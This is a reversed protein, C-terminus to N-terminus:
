SSFLVLPRLLLAVFLLSSTHLMGVVKTIIKLSAEPVNLWANFAAILQSRIDKGPIGDMYDYPGFLIKEKDPTWSYAADKQYILDEGIPRKPPSSSATDGYPKQKYSIDAPLQASPLSAMKAHSNMNSRPRGGALWNDEPLPKLCHKSSRRLPIENPSVPNTEM